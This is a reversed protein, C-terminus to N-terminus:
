SSVQQFESQTLDWLISRLLDRTGGRPAGELAIVKNEFAAAARAANDTAESSLFYTEAGSATMAPAANVHVSVFLDAKERNALRTRERLAVFEDRSRTLVVRVDAEDRLLTAVRQSVDLTLEKEQLGAPGIAGPDHGGHGPDIVITRLGAAAPAADRA